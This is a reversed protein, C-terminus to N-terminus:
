PDGSARRGNRLAARSAPTEGDGAAIAVPGEGESLREVTCIIRAGPQQHVTLGPARSHLHRRRAQHEVIAFDLAAHPQKARHLAGRDGEGRHRVRMPLVRIQSFESV